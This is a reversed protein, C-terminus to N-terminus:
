ILVEDLEPEAPHLARTFYDDVAAFRDDTV